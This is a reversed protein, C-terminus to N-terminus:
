CWERVDMGHSAHTSRSGPLLQLLPSKHSSGAVTRRTRRGRRRLEQGQLSAASHHPPRAGWGVTSGRLPTSVDDASHLSGVPPRSAAARTMPPRAWGREAGDAGMRAPMPTRTGKQLGTRTRAKAPSATNSRSYTCVALSLVQSGRINSLHARGRTRKRWAALTPPGLAGSGAVATAPWLPRSNTQRAAQFLWPLPGWYGLLGLRGYEVQLRPEVRQGM